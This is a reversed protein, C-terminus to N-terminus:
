LGIMLGAADSLVVGAPNFGPDIVAAQNFLLLGVLGTGSPITLSWTATNGAGIVFSSIETSSRLLCGPAGFSAADVPLPGFASVSNSFGTLMIGASIPLNNIGVNLTTGVAPMASPTLRSVGLSGACGPGFFGYGALDGNNRTSYNLSGNWCRGVIGATTFLATSVRGPAATPNPYFTVDPGVFPGQPSNTYSVNMTGGGPVSLFVVMGYDGAPLYFSNNLAVPYPTAPTIPGGNAVGSGSAVLRWAGPTAEKGLYSGSTVYVDANFPGVYTYIGQTLSCVTIGNPNTVQMDFMNGIFTTSSLGNGGLFPVATATAPSLTLPRTTSWPGACTSTVALRVNVSTCPAPYAWIPNQVTSDTIGDGDLDWAWTAPAPASTDTFQYVGPAIPSFTFSPTIPATGAQIYGTRTLTSAPHLADTVTLSVTYNGCAGYIFSPNQLNSDTIGDGDLDWAWSTIGNPDSSFTRDTFNVSLPLSGSTVDASFGAYLGAAPVYDLQVVVGHNTNIIGTANAGGNVYGTTLYVRSAQPNLAHVDLQPGSGTFAQIPIDCEINLDGLNPDYVFSTALPVNIGFPTPGVQAAQATWSVPGNYCVAYDAGRNTAFTTSPATSQGVPMTSLAVTCPNPYTSNVLGVNTNPRWSLGNIIIPFNVGQTLFHNSSYLTQILIGTGGRGWPFANATSGEAVNMGAPIVLQLQATAAASLAAVALLPLIRQMTTAISLSSTAFRLSGM